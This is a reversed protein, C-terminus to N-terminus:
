EENEANTLELNLSVTHCTCGYPCCYANHGGNEALSQTEAREYIYDALVDDPLKKAKQLAKSYKKENFDQTSFGDNQNKPITEWEAFVTELWERDQNRINERIAEIGEVSFGWEWAM